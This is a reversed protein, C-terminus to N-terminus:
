RTPTTKYSYYLAWSVICFCFPVLSLISAEPIGSLFSDVIGLFGMLFPAAINLIRATPRSLFELFLGWVALVPIVVLVCLEIQDSLYQLAWNTSTLANFCEVLLWALLFCVWIRRATRLANDMRNSATDAEVM